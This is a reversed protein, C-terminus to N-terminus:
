KNKKTPNPCKGKILWGSRTKASKGVFCLLMGRKTRTNEVCKCKDAGLQRRGPEDSGSLTLISPM